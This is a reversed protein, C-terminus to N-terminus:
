QIVVHLMQMNLHKIHFATFFCLSTVLCLKIALYKRSINQYIFATEQFYEMIEAIQASANIAFVYKFLTYFEKQLLVVTAVTVAQYM